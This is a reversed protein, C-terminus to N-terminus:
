SPPQGGQPNHLGSIPGGTMSNHGMLQDIQHNPGQRQGSRDQSSPRHSQSSPQQQQQQQSQQSQLLQQSQQQGTQSHSPGHPTDHPGMSESPGNRSVSSHMDAATLDRMHHPVRHSRGTSLATSPGLHMMPGGGGIRGEAAKYYELGPDFQLLVFIKQIM